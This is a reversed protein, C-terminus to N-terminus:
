TNKFSALLYRRIDANGHYNPPASFRQPHSEIQALGEGVESVFRMALDTSHKEYWRAAGAIDEEAERLVKLMM